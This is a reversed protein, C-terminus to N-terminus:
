SWTLWTIAMDSLAASMLGSVIGCCETMFLAGAVARARSWHFSPVWQWHALMFSVYAWGTLLPNLDRKCSGIGIIDYVMDIEHQLWCFWLMNLPADGQLTMMHYAKVSGHWYCIVRDGSCQVMWICIAYPHCQPLLQGDSLQMCQLFHTCLEYKTINQNPLADILVYIRLPQKVPVPAIMHNGWHWHLLGSPYWYICGMSRCYVFCMNLMESCPKLVKTKKILFQMYM